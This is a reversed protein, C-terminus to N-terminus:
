PEVSTPPTGGPRGGLEKGLFMYTIGAGTVATKLPQHGFHPAYKSYPHSRVDVLTEIQHMTLFGLFTDWSHNSHGISFLRREAKPRHESM